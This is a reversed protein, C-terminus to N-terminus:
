GDLLRRTAAGVGFGLVGLALVVPAWFTAAGSGEFSGPLAVVANPTFLAFSAIRGAIPAAALSLSGALGGRRYAAGIALVPGAVTTTALVATVPGAAVAPVAGSAALAQLGMAAGFLGAAVAIAGVAASREGVLITALSRTRLDAMARDSSMM